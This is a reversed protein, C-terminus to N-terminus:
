QNEVRDEVRYLLLSGGLEADPTRDRLWALCEREYLQLNAVSIAYLGNQPETRSPLASLRGHPCYNEYSIGYYAPDYDGFYSLAIHPIGNSDMYSKLALLGQGADHDIAHAYGPQGIPNFYSAYWPFAAVASLASLAICGGIVLSFLRKGRAIPVTGAPLSILMFLYPFVPLIYRIGLQRTSLSMYAFFFLTPILLFWVAAMDPSFKWRKRFGPHMRFTFCFLTDFLLVLTILPLKVALLKLYYMANGGAYTSDFLFNQFVDRALKASYLFNKLYHYPVLIPLHNASYEVARRFTPQDPFLAAYTQAISYRERDIHPDHALNEAFPSFAGRFGYPIGMTLYGVGGILLLSILLARWRQKGLFRFPQDRVFLVGQLLLIPILFLNTFRTIQALGFLVGTAILWQWCPARCFKWFCYTTAFFFLAGAIDTTSTTANALVTPSFAYLGLALIATGDGFLERCWIFLLAGLLIGLILISLRAPVILQQPDNATFLFADTFAIQSSRDEPLQVEMFLLPLAALANALIPNAVDHLEGTTLYLYGNPLHRKEDYQVSLHPISAIGQATFAALLIIAIFVPSFRVM